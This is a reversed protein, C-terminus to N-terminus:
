SLRGGMEMGTQRLLSDPGDMPLDFIDNSIYSVLESNTSTRSEIHERVELPIADPVLVASRSKYPESKILGRGALRNLAVKQYQQIERYVLRIDPIHVFSDKRKPLKLNQKRAAAETAPKIERLYHPFLYFLDLFSLKSIPSTQLPCEALISLLRYSCHHVDRM